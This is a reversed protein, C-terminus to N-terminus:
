LLGIVDADGADTLVLAPRQKAGTADSYPFAILVVEGGRHTVM